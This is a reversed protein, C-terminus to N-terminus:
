LFATALDSTFRFVSRLSQLQEAIQFGIQHREVNHHGFAVADVAQPGKAQHAVLNRADLDDDNARHWEFLRSIGKQFLAGECVYYLREVLEREVGNASLQSPDEGFEGLLSKSSWVEGDREDPRQARLLSLGKRAGPSSTSCIPYREIRSRGDAQHSNIPFGVPMTSSFGKLEDVADAALPM